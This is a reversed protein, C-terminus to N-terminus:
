ECKFHNSVGLDHQCKGFLSKRTKVKSAFTSCPHCLSVIPEEEGATECITNVTYCTHLYGGLNNNQVNQASNPEIHTFKHAGFTYCGGDVVIRKM